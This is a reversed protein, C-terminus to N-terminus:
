RTIFMDLRLLVFTLHGIKLGEEKVGEERVGMIWMWMFNDSSCVVQQATTTTEQQLWECHVCWIDVGFM